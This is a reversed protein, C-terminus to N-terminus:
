RAQELVTRLRMLLKPEHEIFWSLSEPELLTELVEAFRRLRVEGTEFQLGASADMARVVSEPSVQRGEALALVASLEDRCQQYGDGFAQDLASSTATSDEILMDREEVTLVVM